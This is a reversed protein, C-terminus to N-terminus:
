FDRFSAAVGVMDGAGIGSNSTTITVDIAGANVEASYANFYEASSTDNEVDETLSGAITATGGNAQMSGAIVFGSDVTTISGLVAQDSAGNVEALTDAVGIIGSGSIVRYVAVDAYLLALSDAIQVTITGSTGTPVKAYAIASFPKHAAPSDQQVAVVASIGGITVSGVSRALTSAPRIGQFIIAIFRNPDETGFNASTYTYTNTNANNEYYSVFGGTLGSGAPGFRYPNIIMSM